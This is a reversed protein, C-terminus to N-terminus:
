SRTRKFIGRRRRPGQRLSEAVARSATLRDVPDPDSDAYLEPDSGEDGDDDRKLRSEVLRWILAIAAKFVPGDVAELALGAPGPVIVDFAVLLDAQAALFAIADDKPVGAKICTGIFDRVEDLDLGDFISNIKENM